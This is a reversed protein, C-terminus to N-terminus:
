NRIVYMYIYVCMYTHVFIFKYIHLCVSLVAFPMCAASSAQKAGLPEAGDAEGSSGAASKGENVADLLEDPIGAMGYIEVALSKRDEMAGPM